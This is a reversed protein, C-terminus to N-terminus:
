PPASWADVTRGSVSEAMYAELMARAAEEPTRERCHLDFVRRQWSAGTIGRAWRREVIELWEDADREDVGNDVLGRRAIPLLRPVLEDARVLARGADPWVFMADLGFRAAQYFNRRAQGFTLRSVLEDASPALGLTLGVVFAASAVMDRVTPGSPFARLEIRLHGGDADDYIPRNWRWVTGNHLRLERLGPIGGARVVDRPSELTMVPLLPEHQAVCEAFLEVASRRVWGHGFSVRAPRWDDDSADRRDDVSQRFLSIRTEQWLRKGLFIPSNTSVALAPACAIQAANFTRAYAEPAVRLHIQFSTNAGEFTVDDALTDLRDEGEIRLSFPKERRRRVAASLVRYRRFESLAAHGLDAACLTPLLGITVLRAGHAAAAKRAAQLADDLQAALTTFSRGALLLPFTNLELNFRDIEPVIRADAAELIVERNVPAPRGERDVLHLELEAGLTTAGRGFDPRALVEDLAVVSERLREEFRAYDQEVFLECDIEVGM